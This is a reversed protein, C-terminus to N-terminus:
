SPCTAHQGALQLKASGDCLLPAISHLGAISHKAHQRCRGARPVM